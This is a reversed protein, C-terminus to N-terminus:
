HLFSLDDRSLVEAGDGATKRLRLDRGEVRVVFVEALTGTREDFERARSLVKEVRFRRGNVVIARPTEEGKYGGYFVVGVLRRPPNM